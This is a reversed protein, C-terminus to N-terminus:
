PEPSLAEASTLRGQTGEMALEPRSPEREPGAASFARGRGGRNLRFFAIVRQLREAQGALAESTSAMEESASANQQIVQALQQIAKSIQEAGSNQERSAASIEQVLEATKQIDPVIKALLSGATEAVTVSSASLTSIEAAAKQSREALKRVEAAVVAFGKGQEGARAAEIAANLALLNTQRAIEEIIMVKEAIEKMAQVTEVVSQGGARADQASRHAIKETQQANDANQSINAAMQEMSSSVEEIAAAQETAGRSMQEAASNMEESGDAVQDAAQKVDLVVAQLREVQQRMADLLQGTEDATEVRIEVSLDGEALSRSVEAARNVPRSVSGAILFVVVAGLVAIALAITSNLYGIRRAPALLQATDAEAVVTWGLAEVQRLAAVKRVGGFVYEIRGNKRAFIEQRLDASGFAATLVQTRDPHAVVQGRRDLVFVHGTEGVRVPDIFRAAFQGLDAVGFVVGVVQERERVPAAIVFVPSGSSPSLTVASFSLTGGLAQKFYEREAVQLTGVVAEDSAALVEGRADALNLVEYYGYKEKLKRLEEGAAKRSAKGVFSDQVATAYVKQESWTEIDLERDRMWSTVMKQTSEAVQEMQADALRVLAAKSNTYSVFTSVAMGCVFLIVTPVMFKNKLSAKM